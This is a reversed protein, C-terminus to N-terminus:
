AIKFGYIEAFSAQEIYEMERTELALNVRVETLLMYHDLNYLLHYAVPKWSEVMFYGFM